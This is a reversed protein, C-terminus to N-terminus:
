AAAAFLAEAAFRMDALAEDLPMRESSVAMLMSYFLHALLRTVTAARERDLVQLDEGLYSGMVYALRTTAEAAGESVSSSAALVARLLLPEDLVRRTVFELRLGMRVAPTDGDIARRSLEDVVQEAWVAVVETLLHDKNHYYKYATIRSVGAREAVAHM